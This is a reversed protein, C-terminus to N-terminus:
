LFLIMFYFLNNKIRDVTTIKKLFDCIKCTFFYPNKLKIKFTYKGKIIYIHPLSHQIYSYCCYTWLSACLQISFDFKESYNKLRKYPASFKEAQRVELLRVLYAFLFKTKFLKNTLRVVKWYKKMIYKNNMVLILVNFFFFIINFFLYMHLVFENKMM